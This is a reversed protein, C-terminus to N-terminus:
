LPQLATLKDFWQGFHPCAARIAPLGIRRAIVPGHTKKKYPPNLLSTLRKSPATVPSDNIHEPTEYRSRIDELARDHRTWLPNAECIKRVDTFLLAEFEHPQVHPIFRERRCGTHSVIDDSLRREIRAARTAPDQHRSEVFEPFTPGLAYLDFLTSVYTDGRQALIERLNLRVRDLNLAGGRGTRSTKVPQAHAFIGRAGLEPALVERVFVEETQGEGLIVLDVM